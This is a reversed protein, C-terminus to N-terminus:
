ESEANVVRRQECRDFKLFIFVYRDSAKRCVAVGDDYTWIREVYDCFVLVAESFIEEVVSGIVRSNRGGPEFHGTRRFGFSDGALCTFTQLTREVGDVRYASKGQIKGDDHALSERM